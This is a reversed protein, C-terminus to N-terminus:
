PRPTGTTFDTVAEGADGSGAGGRAPQRQNENGTKRPAGAPDTM